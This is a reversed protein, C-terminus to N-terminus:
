MWDVFRMWSMMNDMEVPDIPSTVAPAPAPNGPMRTRAEARGPGFLSRWVARSTALVVPALRELERHTGNGCISVSAIARGSGRLPAAVCSM